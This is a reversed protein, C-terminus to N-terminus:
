KFPFALPITALAVIATIVTVSLGIRTYDAFRYGGPGMVMLNTQYGIPTCFALSAAMMIAVAFPIVSVDLRDAVNVGIPFLLAAAANNSVLETFLITVVYVAALSLMASTGTLSLMGQAITSAAGSSELAEGIGFSAGIVILVSWDVTRRAVDVTCCRLMLMLCAAILGGQLMSLWEFSVVVIMSVLILLALIAREHHVPSSDEIASVLYFDRSNRQQEAFSTPAELLLTDGPNLTIDGIKQHLREGNRAVAIVVANYVSRFHGDRVTKGILQCSNSVVAEVLTRQPRPGDLKFVQNTAPQLGRIKQLDVVSEVIGVFILQDGAELVEEPSAAVLRGHRNIEALYTGPLHRLGASEITKGVLPGGPDILMEVTYQRPDDGVNVAPKRDPLLWRALAITVAIGAIACPVGVPAIDFIGFGKGTEKIVFGNVVLNTSTGILTMVGGLVAAYSLPIMLKSPSWRNKKAWDGVVPIMMAVLPTNNMLSSVAAVPIMLRSQAGLLSKPRGLLFGSIYAIAGTDRLGAVLVYMIGVTILGENGFGSFAEKPDIIGLGLLITIAGIFVADASLKTFALLGLVSAVLSLTTWAQWSM